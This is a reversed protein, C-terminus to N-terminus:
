QRQAYQELKVKYIDVDGQAYVLELYDKESPKFNGMTKLQDTYFIYSINNDKLFQHKKPDFNNTKFFWNVQEFKSNFFLTEVGHGLFVKHGIRGPILNGNYFDTLIVQSPQTNQKFWDFAAITDNSIYLVPHTKNVVISFERAWNFIHSSGFLLIFLIIALYKNNIWFDFRKAPMKERLYSYIFFLGMVALLIMPIQLGQMLRRQFNFPSYLLAFQVVLWVILFININELKHKKFLSFIAMIALILIFGYSFLTVWLAPSLCINQYARIQTIYDSRTLWLWYLVSPLSIASFILLHKLYSFIIEKHIIFQVLAYAGLVAFITPAHFPHFEFLLLAIIGAALSYKIKNKDFSFFMLFFVLILFIMSLILHPSQFMTLLNNNEPAWLDLPWNYWGKRYVSEDILGSIAFGLGSAFTFFIFCIKRWTKDAWFYSALLYLLFLFFPILIIRTIHFAIINSLGTFKAFLGVALWFGNAMLRSQAESTYLDEFVLHGNKVQEIYSFYVHIDGPTLSHLGTYVYNEPTQYWGYLYPATTLFIVFLTIAILFYWEKKNISKILDRIM